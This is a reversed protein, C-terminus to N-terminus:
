RELVSHPVSALKAEPEPDGPDGPVGPDGNECAYWAAYADDAQEQAAQLNVCATAYSSAEEACHSNGNLNIVPFTIKHIKGRTEFKTTANGGFTAGAVILMAGLGMGVGLGEFIRGRFIDYVM